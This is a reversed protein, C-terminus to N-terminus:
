VFAGCETHKISVILTNFIIHRHFQSVSCVACRSGEVKGLCPGSSEVSAVSVSLYFEMCFMKSGELSYFSFALPSLFAAKALSSGQSPWLQSCGWNTWATAISIFYIAMCYKQSIEWPYIHELNRAWRDLAALQKVNSLVSQTSGFMRGKLSCKGRSYKWRPKNSAFAKFICWASQEPPGWM